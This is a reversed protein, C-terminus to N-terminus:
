APLDKILEHRKGAVFETIKYEVLNNIVFPDHRFLEEVEAKDKLLVIIVGGTRPVKPGACLIVGREVQLDLWTRHNPTNEEIVSLETIYKTEVLFM